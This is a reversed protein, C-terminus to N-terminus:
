YKTRNKFFDPLLAERILKGLNLGLKYFIREELYVKMRVYLEDLSLFHLAFNKAVREIYDKPNIFYKKLDEVFKTYEDPITECITFMNAIDNMLRALSRFLEISEKKWDVPLQKIINVIKTIEALLEMPATEGCQLLAPIKKLIESGEVVGYIIDLADKITFEVNLMKQELFRLSPTKKDFALTSLCLSLLLLLKIM